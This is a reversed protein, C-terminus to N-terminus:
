KKLNQRKKSQSSELVSFDSGSGISNITFDHHVTKETKVALSASTDKKSKESQQANTIDDMFLEEEMYSM